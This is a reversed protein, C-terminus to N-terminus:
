KATTNCLFVLISIYIKLDYLINAVLFTFFYFLYINLFLHRFFEKYRITIVKLERPKQLTEPKPLTASAVVEPEKSVAHLFQKLDSKYLEYAQYPSLMWVVWSGLLYTFLCGTILGSLWSPLPFLLYIYIFIAGTWLHSWRASSGTNPRLHHQLDKQFIEDTLENLEKEEDPSIIESDRNSTVTQVPGTLDLDDTNPSPSRSDFHVEMNELTPSGAGKQSSLLESFTLRSSLLTPSKLLKKVTSSNTALAQEVPPSVRKPTDKLPLHSEDSTFHLTQIPSLTGSNRRSTPPSSCEQVKAADEALIDDSSLLPELIEEEGVIEKEKANNHSSESPIDDGSPAIKAPLLPSRPRDENSANGRSYYYNKSKSIATSIHGKLWQTKSQSGESSKLGDVSDSSNSFSDNLLSEDDLLTENSGTQDPLSNSSNSTARHKRSLMGSVQEKVWLSKSSMSSEAIKVEPAEMSVKEDINSLKQDGTVTGISNSRQREHKSNSENSSTNSKNNSTVNKSGVNKNLKSSLYRRLSEKKDSGAEGAIKAEEVSQNNKDAGYLEDEDESGVEQLKKLSITLHAATSM